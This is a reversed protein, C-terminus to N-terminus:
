RQPTEKCLLEDGHEALWKIKERWVTSRAVDEGTIYRRGQSDFQVAPLSGQETRDNRGNGMFNSMGAKISSYYRSHVLM